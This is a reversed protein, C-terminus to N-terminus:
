TKSGFCLISVPMIYIKIKQGTKIESELLFEFIINNKFMVKTKFRDASFITETVCGEIVNKSNLKNSVEAGTPKFILIVQDEKRFESQAFAL